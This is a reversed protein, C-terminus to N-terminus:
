IRPVDTASIWLYTVNSMNFKALVVKLYATQDLVITNETREIKISLFLKIERLDVMDFQKMLYAKFKTMTSMNKTAIVLVLYINDKVNLKDLFYLCYDVEANKFKLQKLINDFREFWCRASQELGYFSKNLKYVQDGSLEMGEPIQM